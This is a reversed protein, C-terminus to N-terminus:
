HTETAGPSCGRKAQWEALLRCLTELHVPKALHVDFGAELVRRRDQAQNYGTLAVLFLAKGDPGARLARVVQYGDMGPLGIDILAVDPRWQRILEVGQPGNEAAEVVYGSLALVERLMERSDANDEVIAVRCSGTAGTGGCDEAAAAVPAGVPLRVVFESGAGPGASHATVTGGHLEVLSKVLSLGVGLGGGSRDLSTACQMFPDFIRALMPAAIGAGTDRV